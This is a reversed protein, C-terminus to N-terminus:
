KIHWFGTMNVIDTPKQCYKFIGHLATEPQKEIEAASMWKVDTIIQANNELEPDSGVKLTGGVHEVEFFVEIAHLPSKIFECAFLFKVPRIDVGTEEKFERILTEEISQGYEIGGGPPAWFDSTNLASHNVMLLEDNKLCIGCARLRVRHGFTKNATTNM